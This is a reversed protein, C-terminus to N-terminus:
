VVLAVTRERVRPPRHCTRFPQIPDGTRVVFQHQGTSRRLRLAVAYAHEFSALEARRSSIAPADIPETM